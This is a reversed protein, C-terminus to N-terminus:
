RALTVGDDFARLNLDRFKPKVCQSIAEIWCERPLELATSMAGLLIVNAVRADGLKEAASIADVYVLRKFAARLREEADAPYVSQGSSVTVPVVVTATTPPTEGPPM